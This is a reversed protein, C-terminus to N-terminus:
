PHLLDVGAHQVQHPLILLLKRLLELSVLWHKVELMRGMCAELAGRMDLRKQPHVTQDHARELKKFVQVYKVYACAWEGFTQPVLSPM